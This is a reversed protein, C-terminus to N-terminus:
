RAAMRLTYRGLGMTANKGVHLWQGLWFWTTLPGLAGRLEWEGLVGGLTMESQQRSSWRTWDHWRLRRTDELREALAALAAPEEVIGPRDACLEFLLSARRLLATVLPRPRLEAERLPRGQQQLRLPTVLDLVVADTEPLAPISLCAPHEVITAARPDWVSWSREADLWEVDVIEGRARDRALGHGVARRLAVVILPLQRLARGVLVMGFQWTAGQEIRRPGATPPEVVYPNPVQSFSQLAHEPPPPVEFISPYPCTSRLPCGDCRPAGTMCVSRRLAAGFQGRLMSGAYEPLVMTDTMRVTFRYRAIPLQTGPRM